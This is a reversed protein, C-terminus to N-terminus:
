VEVIAQLFPSANVVLVQLSGKALFRWFARVATACAALELGGFCAYRLEPHRFVVAGSSQTGSEGAKLSGTPAPCQGRWPVFYCWWCKCPNARKSVRTSQHNSGERVLNRCTPCLMYFLLVQRNLRRKSLASATMWAIYHRALIKPFTKAPVPVSLLDFSSQLAGPLLEPILQRLGPLRHHWCFPTM